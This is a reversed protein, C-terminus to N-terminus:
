TAAGPWDAGGRGGLDRGGRGWRAAGARDRDGLGATLGRPQAEMGPDEAAAGWPGPPRPPRRRLGASDATSVPAAAGPLPAPRPQADEVATSLPGLPGAWFPPCHAGPEGSREGCSPGGLPWM